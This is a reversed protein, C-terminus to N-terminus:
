YMICINVSDAKTNKSNAITLSIDVSYRGKLFSLPKWGEPQIVMNILGNLM